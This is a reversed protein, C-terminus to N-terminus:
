AKPRIDWPKPYLIVTPYFLKLQLSLLSKYYPSVNKYGGYLFFARGYRYKFSVTIGVCHM